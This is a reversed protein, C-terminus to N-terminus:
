SHSALASPGSQNSSTRLASGYPESTAGSIDAFPVLKYHAEGVVVVEDNQMDFDLLAIVGGAMFQADISAQEIKGTATRSDSHVVAGELHARDRVDDLDQAMRKVQGLWSSVMDVDAKPATIGVEPGFRINGADTVLTSALALRLHSRLREYATEILKVM